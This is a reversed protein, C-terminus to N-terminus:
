RSRRKGSTWPSSRRCSGALRSHPPCPAPLVDPLATRTDEPLISAGGGPPSAFAQQLRPRSQACWLRTQVYARFRGSQLGDWDSQVHFRPVLPCDAATVNPQQLGECSLSPESYPEGTGSIQFTEDLGPQPHLVAVFDRGPTEVACSYATVLRMDWGRLEVKIRGFVTWPSVKIRYSWNPEGISSKWTESQKVAACRGAMDFAPPPPPRAALAAIALSMM